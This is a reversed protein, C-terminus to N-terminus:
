SLFKCTAVIEPDKGTDGLKIRFVDGGGGGGGFFNLKM